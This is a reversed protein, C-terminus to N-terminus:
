QFDSQSDVRSPGMSMSRCRPTFMLIFTQSGLSMAYWRLATPPQVHWRANRGLSLDLYDPVLKALICSSQCKHVVEIEEIAAEFNDMFALAGADKRLKHRIIEIQREFTVSAPM